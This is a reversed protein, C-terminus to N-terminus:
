RVREQSLVMQKVKDILAIAQQHTHTISRANLLSQIQRAMFMLVADGSRALLYYVVPALMSPEQSLQLVHKGAKDLQNLNFNKSASIISIAKIAKQEMAIHLLTKGTQTSVANVNVGAKGFVLMSLALLEKDLARVFLEQRELDSGRVLWAHFLFKFRRVFRSPIKNSKNEILENMKSFTHISLKSHDEVCYTPDFQKISLHVLESFQSRTFQAKSRFLAYAIDVKKERLALALATLGERMPHTSSENIDFLCLGKRSDQEKNGDFYFPSFFLPYLKSLEPTSILTFLPSTDLSNPTSKREQHFAILVDKIAPYLCYQETLNRYFQCLSNDFSPEELHSLLLAKIGYAHEEFWLGARICGWTMFENAIILESEIVRSVEKLKERQTPNFAEDSSLFSWLEDFIPTSMYQSLIHSFGEEKFLEDLLLDNGTYFGNVQGINVDDFIANTFLQLLNAQELDDYFNGTLQLYQVKFTPSRLCVSEYARSHIIDAYLLEFGNIKFQNLIDLNLATM